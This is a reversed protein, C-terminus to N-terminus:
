EKKSNKNSSIYGGRGQVRKEDFGRESAWLDMLLSKYTGFAMFAEFFADQAIQPPNKLIEHPRPIAFDRFEEFVTRKPLETANRDESM